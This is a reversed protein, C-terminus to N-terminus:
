VLADKSILPQDQLFCTNAEGDAGTRSFAHTQDCLANRFAPQHEERRLCYSKTYSEYNM